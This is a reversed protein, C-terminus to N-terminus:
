LRSLQDDNYNNNIAVTPSFKKGSCIIEVSQAVITAILLLPSPPFLASLIVGLISLLRCERSFCLFIVEVLGLAAKLTKPPIKGTM